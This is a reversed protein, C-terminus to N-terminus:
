SSSSWPTHTHTHARGLRVWGVLFVFRARQHHRAHRRSGLCLCSCMWFACVFICLSIICIIESWRDVCACRVGTTCIVRRAALLVGGGGGCRTMMTRLTCCLLMAADCVLISSTICWARDRRGLRRRNRTRAERMKPPGGCRMTLWVHTRAREGWACARFCRQAHTRVCENPTASSRPAVRSCPARVSAARDDPHVYYFLGKSIHLYKFPHNESPVSAACLASARRFLLNTTTNSTPQQTQHESGLWAM